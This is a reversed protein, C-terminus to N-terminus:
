GQVRNVGGGKRELNHRPNTTDQSHLLRTVTPGQVRLDSATENHAYLPSGSQDLRLLSCTRVASCYHETGM